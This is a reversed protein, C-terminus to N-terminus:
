SQSSDDLWLRWIINSEMNKLKEVKAINEQILDKEEYLLGM